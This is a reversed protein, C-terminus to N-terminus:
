GGGAGVKVSSRVALLLTEIEARSMGLSGAMLRVTSARPVARGREVDSIARTSLGTMLALEEQTLGAKWRAEQFQTRWDYGTNNMSERKLRAAGSAARSSGLRARKELTLAATIGGSVM